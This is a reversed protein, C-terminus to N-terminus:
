ELLAVATKIGLSLVRARCRILDRTRVVGGRAGEAKSFFRGVDDNFQRSYVFVLNHAGLGGRRSVAYKAACAERLSIGWANEEGVVFVGLAM